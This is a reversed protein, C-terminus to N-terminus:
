GKVLDNHVLINDETAFYCDVEEVDLTVVNITDEIFEISSISIVEKDITFVKDGVKLDPTDIWGWTLGDRSAFFPHKITIKISNNIFYYSQYTDKNVSNLTVPIIMGENPSDTKWEEWGPVDEDIMGEVYYGVLKDGVELDKIVKYSGDFLPVITNEDLCGGGGSLLTTASRSSSSGNYGSASFSANITYTTSSSLGTRSFTGSTIGTGLSGTSTGSVGSISTSFSVGPNSGPNSITWSISTTGTTPTNIIPASLTPTPPPTAVNTSISASSTSSNPFGSASLSATVTYSTGSSLGTQTFDASSNASISIPSKASFGSVGTSATVSINNPNSVRWGIQSTTTSGSLATITPQAIQTSYSASATLSDTSGSISAYATIQYQTAATLGTQSFNVTSGANISQTKTAFGSVLTTITATQTANNRVSWTISSTTSSVFNLTPTSVVPSLTSINFSSINSPLETTPTNPQFWYYVTYSTNSTLGSFTINKTESPDIGVSSSSSNPNFLLSFVSGRVSFNNTLGFTISSTTASPPTLSPVPSPSFTQTQIESDNIASTLKTEHETYYSVTANTNNNVTLQNQSITALPDIIGGVQSYAGGNLNRFIKAKFRTDSNTTVPIFTKTTPPNNIIVGISSLTMEANPQGAGMQLQMVNNGNYIVRGVTKETDDNFKVLDINSSGFKFNKIEAM